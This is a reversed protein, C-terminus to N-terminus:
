SDDEMILFKHGKAEVIEARIGFAKSCDEGSLSSIEGQKVLKGESLLLFEDAYRLALSVDHMVVLIAMNKERALRKVLSLLSLRHKADLSSTPEDMLLVSAGQVLARAVAVMQKEGGSLRSADRLSLADLRLETLVREVERYDEEGADMGLYPKRGLLVADFVTMSPFDVDQPVYAIRKARERPRLRSVDKGDLLIRGSQAKLVCLLNLLLTSKGAGNAGLVFLCKGGEARFSVDSLVPRGGYSFCLREVSLVM